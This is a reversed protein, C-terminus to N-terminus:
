SQPWSTTHGVYLDCRATSEVRDMAMSRGSKWLAGAVTGRRHELRGLCGELCAVLGCSRVQVMRSAFQAPIEWQIHQPREHPYHVAAVHGRRFATTAGGDYQVDLKGTGDDLVSLLFANRRRMADTQFGRELLRATGQKGRQESARCEQIWDLFPWKEPRERLVAPGCGRTGELDQTGCGHRGPDVKGLM